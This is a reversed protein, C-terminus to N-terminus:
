LWGLNKWYAWLWPHTWCNLLPYSASFVSVALLGYAVIRGFRQRCFVDAAPILAVLWIPILWFLWRFGSCSGGYNRDEVPRFGVYFATCVLTLGVVAAALAWRRRDGTVWLATGVLSLLWVPTLSFVGHHGILVHFAYTAVSDEGRDFGQKADPLWYSGPYQYWNGSQWDQGAARHAYPPLWSDHAALNTAFFLAAVAIVPLVAWLVTKKLSVCALGIMVAVLLSLAPLECIAALAASLGCLGFRWPERCYGHAVEDDDQEIADAMWRRPADRYWIRLLLYVAVATATAAPLHNNISIAFTTLFTGFTAVAMVYAGGADSHSWHQVARTIVAFFGLLLFGNTLAIVTRGVYFPAKALKKGTIKQVAWTQWALGFAFWPPKSSYYHQQGDRGRHSVKDISDWGKRQIVRDIKCTGDNLLSQVNCWRSRDNASLFPTRKDASTVHAIRAFTVSMSIVVLLGIIRCDFRGNSEQTDLM